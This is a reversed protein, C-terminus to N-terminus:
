NRNRLKLMGIHITAMGVIWLSASPLTIFTNMVVIAPLVLLLMGIEDLHPFINGDAFGTWTFLIFVSSMAGFYTAILGTFMALVWGSKRPKGFGGAMSLGAIFVGLLTFLVITEDKIEGYLGMAFLDLVGLIALAGAVGIRMKWDSNIINRM